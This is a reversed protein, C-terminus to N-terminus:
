ARFLEGLWGAALGLGSQGHAYGSRCHRHSALVIPRADFLRRSIALDGLDAYHDRWIMGLLPVMSVNYKEGPELAIAVCMASCSTPTANSALGVRSYWFAWRECSYRAILASPLTGVRTISPRGNVSTAAVSHYRARRYGPAPSNGCCPSMSASARTMEHIDNM